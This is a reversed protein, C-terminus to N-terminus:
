MTEFKTLTWNYRIPLIITGCAQCKGLETQHTPAGCNPCNTITLGEQVTSERKVFTLLVKKNLYDKNNGRLVKRDQTNIIYEKMTAEILVKIEEKDLSRGYDYINCNKILLDETILEIGDKEFAKAQM